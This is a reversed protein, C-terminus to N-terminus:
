QYLPVLFFLARVYTDAGYRYNKMIFSDLIIKENTKYSTPGRLM